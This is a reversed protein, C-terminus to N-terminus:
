SCDHAIWHRGVSEGAEGGPVSGRDRPEQHKEDRRGGPRVIPLQELGVGAGIRVYEDDEVGRVRHVVLEGVREAQRRVHVVEQVRLAREVDLARLDAHGLAHEPLDHGVGDADVPREGVVAVGILGEAGVQRAREAIRDAAGLRRALEELVATELPEVEGVLEVVAIRDRVDERRVFVGVDLLAAEQLEAVLHHVVVALGIGRLRGSLHRVDAEGVTQRHPHRAAAAFRIRRM